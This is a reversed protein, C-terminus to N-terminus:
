RRRRDGGATARSRGPHQLVWGPRILGPDTLSRGDPQPRGRNLEFLESARYGDGLYREALDWLTDRRQVLHEITIPPRRRHRSTRHVPQLRHRRLRNPPPDAAAVAPAPARPPAHSRHRGALRPRHRRRAARCPRPRPQLGPISRPLAAAHRHRGNRRRRRRAVQLWALWLIVALIKWVTATELPQDGAFTDTIDGLHPLQRPLPWGVATILLIPLGVLRPAGLAISAALARVADATRRM